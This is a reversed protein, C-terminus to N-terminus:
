EATSAWSAASWSASSWSASSWSASSWSASSWSASSWSAASRASDAIPSALWSAADFRMLGTAPDVGASRSLAANPNSRGDADKIASNVDVIGVGLPGPPDYGTLANATAMLAGKVQDPTWDPHRALVSAAAGAVIPAAFSTGSMWMYTGDGKRQRGEAVRRSPNTSYMLSDRPVPGSLFRGPAAIEPKSFGDVTKGWSSWPAAFDDGSGATGNTDAAGVTIVLPDNAPAFRVGSEAGAVADNGAAAVVVIGNLWLKEVARDLPDNRASGGGAANVSFNVVGIRYRDKNALIWDCADLLDSVRGVGTDDLVDLSLIRARPEVGAYGYGGGAALGAVLTGHGYGDGESNPGTTTFDVQRILRDGFDDRAEVGSDIVAITPYDTAGSTPEWDVGVTAPWSQRNGYGSARVPGDEAPGLADVRSASSAPIVGQLREAPNAALALALALLMAGGCLARIGSGFMGNVARPVGGRRPGGSDFMRRM